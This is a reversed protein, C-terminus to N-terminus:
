LVYWDGSHNKDDADEFLYLNVPTTKILRRWGDAYQKLFPETSPVVAYFLSCETPGDAHAPVFYASFKKKRIAVAVDDIWMSDQVHVQTLVTVHANDDDFRERGNDTWSEMETLSQLSACPVYRHSPTFASPSKAESLLKKLHEVSWSHTTGYPFQFPPAVKDVDWNQVVPGVPHDVLFHFSTQQIVDRLTYGEFIPENM